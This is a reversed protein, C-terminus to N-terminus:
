FKLAGNEVLVKGDVKLTSGPLYNAMAYAVDNEGGAWLNGGIGVTIMGAPMWAVMRSGPILRVNPNIGVDVFAFLDKGSGAADYLAKAPELGSKATMSTLKGAKFTLTLGEIQKGQFFQRDVVIKGEATGPVPTLFVEGAPLWVQSAAGGKRMDEASIVGDSVFVPRGEIRVKLDTGNPNTIHVEKGTALIKKLAEGTAQLKSSDANVGDWFLKALEEKSVGFQKALEATPYLSNGLNVQRVNRALSLAGVPQFTQTVAAIREPPVGALFDANEVFDITIVATVLSTLKLAFDQTQSDYKAPVHDYMRRIMRESDLTVLPFAGLKRVEVAINELLEVDRVGGSILVLDGEHIGANQTVLKEALAASDAGGGKQPSDAVISLTLLLVSVVVFSVAIRRM